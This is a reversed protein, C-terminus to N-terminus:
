KKGPRKRNRKARAKNSIEAGKYPKRNKRVTSTAVGTTHKRRRRRNPSFETLRGCPLGNSVRVVSSSELIVLPCFGTKRPYQPLVEEPVLYFRFTAKGQTSENSSEEILVSPSHNIHNALALFEPPIVKLLNRQIVLNRNKM